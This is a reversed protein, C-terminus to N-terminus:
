VFKRWDQGAEKYLGVNKTIQPNLVETLGELANNSLTKFYQDQVAEEIEVLTSFEKVGVTRIISLLHELHCLDGTTLWKLFFVDEIESHM